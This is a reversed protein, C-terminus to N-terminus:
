SVNFSDSAGFYRFSRSPYVWALVANTLLITSIALCCGHYDILMLFDTHFKSGYLQRNSFITTDKGNFVMFLSGPFPSQLM